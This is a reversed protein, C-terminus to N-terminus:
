KSRTEPNGGFPRRLAPNEADGRKPSRLKRDNMGGSFEEGCLECLVCLVILNYAFVWCGIGDKARIGEKGKSFHNFRNRQTRQSSQPSYTIEGVGV